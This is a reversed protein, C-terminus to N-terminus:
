TKAKPNPPEGNHGYLCHNLARTLVIGFAALVLKRMLKM